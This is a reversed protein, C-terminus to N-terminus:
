LEASSLPNQLTILMWSQTHSIHESCKCFNTSVGYIKKSALYVLLSPVSRKNRADCHSSARSRSVKSKDSNCQHSGGRGSSITLTIVPEVWQGLTHRWLHCHLSWLHIHAQYFGCPKCFPLVPFPRGVWHIM